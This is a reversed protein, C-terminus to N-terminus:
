RERRFMQSVILAGLLTRPDVLTGERAMEIIDSVNVLFREVAEGPECRKDSAIATDAEILTGWAVESCHAPLPMTGGLFVPPSVPVIGGEEKVGEIGRQAIEDPTMEGELTEAIGELKLPSRGALVLPERVGRKLILFCEDGIFRYATVDVADFGRRTIISTTTEGLVEGTISLGEVILHEERLFPTSPPPVEEMSVVLPDSALIRRVEAMSAAPILSSEATTGRTAQPLPSPITLKIGQEHAILFAAVVVQLDSVRGSLYDDVISQVPVFSADAVPADDYSSVVLNFSLPSIGASSFMFPTSTGLRGDALPLRMLVGELEGGHLVPFTARKAAGPAVEPQLIIGLDGDRIGWMLARSETLQSPALVSYAFPLEHRAEGETYTVRFHRVVSPVRGESPSLQISHLEPCRQWPTLTSNQLPHATMKGLM